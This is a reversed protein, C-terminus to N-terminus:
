RAHILGGATLVGVVAFSWGLLLGSNTAGGSALMLLAGAFVLASSLVIRM